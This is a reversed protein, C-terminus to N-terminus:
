DCININVLSPDSSLIDIEPKQMKVILFKTNQLLM